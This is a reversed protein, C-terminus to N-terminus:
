DLMPPSAAGAHFTLFWETPIRTHPDRQARALEQEEHVISKMARAVYPLHPWGREWAKLATRRDCGAAKAAFRAHGPSRRYAELLKEAVERSIGGRHVHEIM